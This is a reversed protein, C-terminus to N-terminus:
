GSTRGGRSALLRQPVRLHRSLRFTIPPSSTVLEKYAVAARGSLYWRRPSDDPRTFQIVADRRGLSVPQHIYGFRFPRLTKGDITRAVNDAVHAASPIGSQCTGHVVGWPMTVAASDGVAFVEPHSVSRLFADVIVRGQGDVHLGADRALPPAVFGGTWLCADFRVLEGGALEVADPLIKRVEIGSRVGIRLRNLAADLHARAGPGMTAGAEGRGLLMVRLHPFSEAIETAAEVGTFGNGCVVVAGGRPLDRLRAALAAAASPGDLTHAHEAIGPVAASNTASGTACVLHDFGIQTVGEATDIDIRRAALDIGRARGQVFTAGAGALLDPLAIEALRQGTALQHMRLRETFLPSPNVLTVAGRRVRRALRIATLTGTYGAGLVVTHVRADREAM